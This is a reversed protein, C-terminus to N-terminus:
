HSLQHHLKEIASFSQQHFCRRTFLVSPGRMCRRRHRCGGTSHGVHASGALTPAPEDGQAVRGVGQVELVHVRIQLVGACMMCCPAFPWWAVLTFPWVFISAYQHFFPFHPILIARNLHFPHRPNTDFPMTQFSRICHSILKSQIGGFISHSSLICMCILIVM